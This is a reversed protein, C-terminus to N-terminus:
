SFDRRQFALAGAVLMVTAYFVAHVAAWGVYEWVPQDAVQGLLLPRPPVYVHLNPVVRALVRGGASVAPGLARKPMHALTDASRGIVFIMATFTATLFPSSFSAFLTAVAAVIGIECVALLASAAVLRREDPAASALFWSAGAVALAWPIAAFVRSTQRVRLWAIALAGLGLVVFAGVKWGTQGAELALMALVAAAEVAIFVLVTLMAGLYKGLLYEWRRIPRSLIPFITKYELERYLSTSGLVIAIVVGYLSLSVAGLDAVVRPENGLSLAAIVLSYAATALGLAFVGLLLRARVAERYTNFAIALIRAFM